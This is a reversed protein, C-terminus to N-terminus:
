GEGLMPLLSRVKEIMENIAKPSDKSVEQTETNDVVTSISCAQHGLLNALAYIGATEMEVNVIKGQKNTFQSATKLLNGESLAARLTRAQPGYFGSCTLTIGLRCHEALQKGFDSDSVAVYANNFAPFAKFHARVDHQLTKEKDSPRYQYFSMLGDFGIAATSLVLGDVDISKSLAGCTGLRLFRLSTIKDKVCRKNFDVNHLADCENLVIDINDTGIGTSVVSVRRGNLVGTHTVFERKRKKIEVQNFHQSVLPVRDPDGVLIITEALEGPLLNLHYISGDANLLLATKEVNKQPM